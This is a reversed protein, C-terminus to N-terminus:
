LRKVGCGRDPRNDGRCHSYETAHQTADAQQEAPLPREKDQNERSEADEYLVEPQEDQRVARGQGAWNGDDHLGDHQGNTDPEDKETALARRPAPQRLRPGGISPM